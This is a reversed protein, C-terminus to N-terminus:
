GPPPRVRGAIPGAATAVHVSTAADARMALPLLALAIWGGGPAGDPVATTIRGTRQSRDGPDPPAPRVPDGPAAPGPLDLGVLRRQQKGYTDLRAVVEQGIYCGKGFDILPRLGLELPNSRGDIEFGFAPLGARVRAAAYATADLPAAGATVLREAMAAAPAGAPVVVDVGAVGGPAAHRMVWVTQDDAGTAWWRGAPAAALELGSAAEAVAMAADSAAGAGTETGWLRLVVTQACADTVRVHDGFLIYRKLQAAVVAAAGPGSTILVAGDAGAHCSVLDVVRGRDDLLCTARGEGAALDELWATSLRHLFGLRDPGSLWVVEVHGAIFGAGVPSVAM